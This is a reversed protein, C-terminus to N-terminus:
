KLVSNMELAAAHKLRRKEKRNAKFANISWKIPFYCIIGLIVGNIMGGVILKLNTLLLYNIRDSLFPLNISIHKPLVWGGVKSNPYMMPIYIVKGLVFGILAAPLSARLLFVLPFILIFAAGLTPLTFMEIAIGIAFGMAVMSAGGKARLLSIRKHTLWRRFSHLRKRM